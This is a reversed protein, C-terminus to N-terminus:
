GVKFGKSELLQVSVAGPRLIQVSGDELPRVLTSPDGGAPWPRDLLSEDVLDLLAPNLATPTAAPPQGSFNASTCVLPAGVERCLRTALPHPTWRVSTFGHEDRVAPALTELSQVLISLPGPWFLEALRIVEDSVEVAVMELMHMSGVLIPLPKMGERAKIEVVRRAAAPNTADCGVAYLTETPYVVVGGGLITEIIELM